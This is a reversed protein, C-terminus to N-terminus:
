KKKTKTTTAASTKSAPLSLKTPAGFFEEKDIGASRIQPAAAMKKGYEGGEVSLRMMDLKVATLKKLVPMGEVVMGIPRIGKLDLQANDALNILIRTTRTNMSDQDFSVYGLGNSKFKPPDDNIRTDRVTWTKNLVPTSSVGFRVISNPTVDYFYNDDFWKNRVLNYFRDSGNPAWARTVEIVFDGQATRFRARFRDPGKINCTEPRILLGRPAPKSTDVALLAVATFAAVTFLSLM